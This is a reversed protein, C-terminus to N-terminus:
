RLLCARRALRMVRVGRYFPFLSDPINISKWEGVNPSVALRWALRIRDRWRERLCMMLRFYRLSKPNHAEGRALKLELTDALKEALEDSSIFRKELECHLLKRALLLSISMIKRIGLRDSERRIWNWELALSALRSIDRIMGLQSWEHKAAHVCLLLLLDENSPVRIRRGEWEMEVSRFFLSDMEFQISYFFPVIQWQLEILNAGRDCGFSYEYGLRLYATEQRESLQLKPSYGLGRLVIRARPVDQPRILFDLDGFQRMGPDDFLTKALAPGKHPLVAIRSTEFARLIGTLEAALRLAQRANTQFGAQLMSQANAPVESRSHLAAYVAPLVRHRDALRLLRKWDIAWCLAAMDSKGRNGCCCALLLDFERDAVFAPSLSRHSVRAAAL